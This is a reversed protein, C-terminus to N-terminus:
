YHGLYKKVLHLGQDSDVSIGVYKQFGGSTLFGQKHNSRYKLFGPTIVPNIGYELYTIRSNNGYRPTTGKQINQPIKRYQHSEECTKHVFSRESIRASPM